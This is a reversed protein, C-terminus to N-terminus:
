FEIHAWFEGAAAERSSYVQFHTKTSRCKVKFEVSRNGACKSQCQSKKMRAHDCPFLASASFHSTQHTQCSPARVHFPKEIVVRKGFSRRRVWSQKWDEEFIGRLMVAAVHHRRPEREGTIRRVQLKVRLKSLADMFAALIIIVSRRELLGSVQHIFILLYFSVSGWSGHYRHLRLVSSAWKM